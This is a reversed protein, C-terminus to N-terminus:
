VPGFKILNIERATELIIKETVVGVYLAYKRHGTTLCLDIAEM